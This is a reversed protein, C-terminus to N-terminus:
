VILVVLGAARETRLRCIGAFSLAIEVRPSARMALLVELLLARFCGLARASRPLLRSACLVVARFLTEVLCAAGACAGCRDLAVL